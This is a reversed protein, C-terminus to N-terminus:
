DSALASGGPSNVRFVLAKIEDNERIDRIEKVMKSSAIGDGDVSIDGEAVFVAINPSNVDDLVKKDDAKKSAYKYFDVLELEDDADTGTKEKLLSLVEDYYKTGDVLKYQVANTGRRILANQALSDLYSPKLNRSEGLVEKYETWLVDLLRQMQMRSSDSMKDLFFPEVASKFDNGEGRIVQMEIDLKDLMNKFFMLEAGLGLFEVM